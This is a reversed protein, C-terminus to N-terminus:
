KLIRSFLYIIGIEIIIMVVIVEFAHADFMPMIGENLGM